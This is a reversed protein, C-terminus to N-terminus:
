LRRSNSGLWCNEVSDDRVAIALCCRRLAAMQAPIRASVMPGATASAPEAGGAARTNCLLTAVPGVWLCIRWATALASFDLRSHAVTLAQAGLPWGIEAGGAARTNCLLTAVPGVWLCIRWATALASFDLRSHAVTLAQAGLPWGCRNPTRAWSGASPKWAQSFIVIWTWYQSVALCCHSSSGSGPVVWAIASPKM